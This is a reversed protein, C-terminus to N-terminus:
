LCTFERANIISMFSVRIIFILLNFDLLFDLVKFCLIRTLSERNFYNVLSDPPSQVLIVALISTINKIAIGAAIGFGKTHEENLIFFRFRFKNDILSSSFFNGCRIFHVFFGQFLEELWLELLVDIRVRNYYQSSRIIQDLLSQM